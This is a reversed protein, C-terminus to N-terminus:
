NFNEGKSPKQVLKKGWKITKNQKQLKIDVSLILFRSLAYCTHIYKHILYVILFSKHSIERFVMWLNTEYYVGHVGVNIGEIKYLNKIPSSLNFELWFRSVISYVNQCLLIWSNQWFCTSMTLCGFLWIYYWFLPFHQRFM